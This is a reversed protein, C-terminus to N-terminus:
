KLLRELNDKGWLYYIILGIWSTALLLIAVLIKVIPNINWKLIDLVAKVALIVGILWIIFGLM